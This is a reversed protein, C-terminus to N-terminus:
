AGDIIGGSFVHLKNTCIHLVFIIYGYPCKHKRTFNNSESFTRLTVYSGTDSLLVMGDAKYPNRLTYTICRCNGSLMM